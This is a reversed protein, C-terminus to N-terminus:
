GLLRSRLCLPGHFAENVTAKVMMVPTPEVVEDSKIGWVIAVFGYSDLKLWLSHKRSVCM